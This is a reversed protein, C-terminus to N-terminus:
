VRGFITFANQTREFHVAYRLYRCKRKAIANIFLMYFRRNKVRANRLELKNDGCLM